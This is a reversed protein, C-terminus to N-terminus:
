QRLLGGVDHPESVIPLARVATPASVGRPPTGGLEIGSSEPDVAQARDRARQIMRCGFEQRHLM